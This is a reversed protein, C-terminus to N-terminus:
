QVSADSGAAQHAARRDSLAILGTMTDVDPEDFASGATYRIAAGSGAKDNRSDVATRVDELYRELLERSCSRFIALVKNGGNRGIFCDSQKAAEQLIGSFERIANDGSEHGCVKNIESLSTLDFTVCGIDEPLKRGAYQSIYADCSYRNAVGTLPDNTVAFDLESNERKLDSFSTFDLFLFVFSLGMVGWLITCLRRVHANSAIMQYLVPDRMVTAVAAATLILFIILQVTKIRDYNKM